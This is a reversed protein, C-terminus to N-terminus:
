LGLSGPNMLNKPDLQAKLAKLLAQVEPSRSELYPYVRGIQMHVAGQARFVDIMGKRIEKVAARADLNEPHSPKDKIYSHSLYQELMPVRADRWYLNPELLMGSQGVPLTTFCSVIGHQKMVPIQCEMYTNLTKHLALVRSHPVIGHMPIWREGNHGIAITPDPFPNGRMVKPVSAEIETANDRLAACAMDLRSKADAEDRGDVALHVSYRIDKLYRDGAAAVKIAEKVGGLVTKQSKTVGALIKLGDKIGAYTTRMATFGPDFGFCESVVQCRSVASLAGFFAEPTEYEYAAYLTVPPRHILQLTVRSKIGFAGCDGIFLGTLDPGYHRFFPSPNQDNGASGTVMISGDATVVELSNVSQAALGYQGSGYNVGHQSLTAGVTAFKGSGTGWFPTRLNHEALADNLAAWTVGCEVVVYMDDANIEVVRNLRKTDVVVTDSRDAIYGASYSLGGGRPLVAYGATTITKVATTLEEPTAPSVVCVPAAGEYLLDSAFLALADDDTLVHAAGVATSVNVILSDHSSDAM